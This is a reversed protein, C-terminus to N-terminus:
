IPHRVDPVGKGVGKREGRIKGKGVFSGPPHSVDMEKGM